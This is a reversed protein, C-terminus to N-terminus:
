SFDSPTYKIYPNYIGKRKAIEIQKNRERLKKKKESSLKHFCRPCSVGKEYRKSNREKSSVPNRCGHCLNFTGTALENKVSVRNDFVFCEGLWKSKDTPIEQLYKLIGGKLQYINEFGKSLMYSSAKECRIGGTCFMAIKNYSHSILKGDVFKKFESFNKTKPSLSNEFTGLEYEFKNRVDLVLTGKKKILKNWDKSNVHTATKKEVSLKINSFTIIENKIKIKLRNFPMYKYYSYKLELNKFGKSNINKEFQEIPKCLGALTGNIGESALLITGRIKHFSCFEKLFNKLLSINKLQRFQYFSIITFTNNNM